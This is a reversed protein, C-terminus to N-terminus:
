IRSWRVAVFPLMLLGLGVAALSCAAIETPGAHFRTLLVIMAVCPLLLLWAGRARDTAVLAFLWVAQVVLLSTAAWLIGLASAGAAYAPGFITTLVFEGALLPVLAAVALGAVMAATAGLTLGVTSKGRAARASVHAFLVQYVPTAALYIMRVLTAAAGYRGAEDDPLYYKAAVVDANVVFALFLHTFVIPASFSALPGQEARGTRAARLDRLQWMGALLGAALGATYGMLAGGAGLGIVVAVLGVGLRAISELVQNIAYASFRQDGRLLGRMVSTPFSVGLLLGLWVVPSAGDIGLANRSLLGVLLWAAFLAAAPRVSRGLGAAALQALQGREGRGHLESALKSVGSELPNMLLSLAYAISLSTAVVAYEAPELLRGLLAVYAFSIVAALGNGVVGAGFHALFRQAPREDGDARPAM